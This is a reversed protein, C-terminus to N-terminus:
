FPSLNCLDDGRDAGDDADDFGRFPMRFGEELGFGREDEKLWWRSPVAALTLMVSINSEVM